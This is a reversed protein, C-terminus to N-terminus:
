ITEIINESAICKGNPHKSWVAVIGGRFTMAILGCEITKKIGGDVNEYYNFIAVDKNM